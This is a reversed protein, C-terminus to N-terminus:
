RQDIAYGSAMKFITNGIMMAADPRDFAALNTILVQRVQKDYMLERLSHAFLNATLNSAELVRAAGAREFIQANKRQHNGAASALPILLSPARVRAIEAMTTAGARSVIVDSAAFAESIKERLYPYAKYNAAGSSAALLDRAVATVTDFNDAGTVHIIGAETVLKPLEKLLVENIQQAGQSGGMVLVVLENAALGFSRKAAEKNTLGFSARVPTGTVLIKNKFRPMSKKTEEFGVAVVTCISALFRNALGPVSDSEHLLIPIRFFWAALVVPVSGFGGKSIVADPMIHWVALLAMVIGAPLRALIDFLTLVSAYRRLKGSPINKVPVDYSAFFERIEADAVGLFTLSLVQPELHKPWTKRQELFETRLAEIIPEFPIIHGGTGGGTLVIRM